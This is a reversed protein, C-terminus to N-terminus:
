ARNRFLESSTRHSTIRHISSQTHHALDGSVLDSSLRCPAPAPHGWAGDRRGTGGALAVWINVVRTITATM